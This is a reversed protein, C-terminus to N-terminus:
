RSLIIAVADYIIKLNSNIATYKINGKGRYFCFLTDSDYKGAFFKKLFRDVKVSSPTAM